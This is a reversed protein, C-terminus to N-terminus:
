AEERLKEKLNRSSHKIILEGKITDKLGVLEGRRGYEFKYEAMRDILPFPTNTQKAFTNARPLSRIIKSPFISILGVNYFLRKNTYRGEIKRKRAERNM